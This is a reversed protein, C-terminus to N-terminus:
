AVFGGGCLVCNDVAAFIIRALSEIPEAQDRQPEPAAPLSAAPDEEEQGEDMTVVEGQNSPDGLEPLSWENLYQTGCITCQKSIGPRQIAIFTLACRSFQHGSRCRAWRVSELTITDNCIECTEEFEEAAAGNSTDAQALMKQSIDTYARLIKKSLPGGTRFQDPLSLVTDVARTFVVETISGAYTPENYAISILLELRAWKVDPEMFLTHRIYRVASGISDGSPTPISHGNTATLMEKAVEIALDIGERDSDFEAERQLSFLITESTVPASRKLRLYSQVVDGQDLGVERSITLVTKQETATLYAVSDSPVMTVATITHDKMPSNAIGWVREAVFLGISHRAGFVRRTENVEDQWAPLVRDSHDQFPLALMATIASASSLHTAIHVKTSGKTPQTFALGSIEDWQDDLEHSTMGDPHENKRSVDICFVRDTAFAVLMDTDPVFGLVGRMSVESDLLPLGNSHRKISAQPAGSSTDLLISICYLQGNVIYALPATQTHGNADQTWTGWALYDATGRLAEETHGNQLPQSDTERLHVTGLVQVDWDKHHPFVINYPSRVLLILIDGAETSVALLYHQAHPASGVPRSSQDQTAAAWAFARVRQAVQIREARQSESELRDQDRASYFARLTHNVILRRTWNTEVNPRGQCGWLSLVHNTSLVALGCRGFRLLGPPSWSLAHVHRMSIEEGPSFNSSSLPDALAIEAATFENARFTCYQWGYEKLDPSLIAIHEGGGVAILNDQSWRVCDLSTPWLSLTIRSAM